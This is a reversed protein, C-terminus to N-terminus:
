RYTIFTYGKGYETFISFDKANEEDLKKKLRSIHLRIPHPDNNMKSGWVNEYIQENTLEKNENQVLLLLVAFEKQTLLADSGDIYAKREDLKLILTGREIKYADTFKDRTMEVRRLLSEVVTVFEDRNYPKTLYYDGGTKLGKIKDDIERKGTLFLIPADTRRRFEECLDYGDGDPLGVDLVLLDPHNGYFLSRAEAASHAALTEYGHRALLRAILQAIKENDEVILILPKWEETM